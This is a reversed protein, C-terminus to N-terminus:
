QKKPPRPKKISDDIRLITIAAETAFKISKIKSMSPELVGAALNDRARGNELNLGTYMYKQKRTEDSQAANHFGRLQAVLDTADHAGNLALTKPIILLAQAFEAIALQERSAMSEAVHELYVSLAAEVAGGGPVVRKSELVRKVVCLSDHLSREIEDLMYYNPGRLLITQASTSSCGMVFTVDRDGVRREEIKAANGLQDPSLVDTGEMNSLNTILTGGTLKAIVRLKRKPIRRVGIIGREVFYQVAIDDIGGTTFVANAGSDIVLQCKKEVVEIETRRMAELENPDSIVMQIGFKLPKKRLDFDLLAIRANNVVKVMQNSARSEECAFGAILESDASAGGVIKLINVAKVPYKTVGEANQTAVAQMADVCIQAFYNGDKGILKSSMSTLASNILCEPGLESVKKTMEKAIFRCAEKKARQYGSIISTPHVHQKVLENARKLLEAALIVVSTTGDGVEADQLAALEVLVRAAPHEVELKKLITAGDNTITVDGLEDVLLKDLGVPGLSSKVINSVALCAKVNQARIDAGTTRTGSISLAM